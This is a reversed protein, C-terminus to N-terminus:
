MLGGIRFYGCVLALFFFLFCFVSSLTFYFGLIFNSQLGVTVPRLTAPARDDHSRGKAVSHVVSVM